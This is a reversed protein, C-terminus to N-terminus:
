KRKATRGYLCNQCVMSTLKKKETKVLDFGSFGVAVSECVSTENDDTLHYVSRREAKKGNELLAGAHRYIYHYIM